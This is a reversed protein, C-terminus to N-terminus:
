ENIDIEQEKLFDEIEYQCQEIAENFDLLGKRFDTIVENFISDDVYKYNDMTRITDLLKGLYLENEEFEELDDEDSGCYPCCYRNMTPSVSCFGESSVLHSSCDYFVRGCYGCRYM